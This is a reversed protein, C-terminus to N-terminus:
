NQLVDRIIAGQRANRVPKVKFSGIRWRIDIAFPFRGSRLSQQMDFDPMYVETDYKDKIRLLNNIRANIELRDHFFSCRTNLAIAFPERRLNQMGKYHQLTYYFSLGVYSTKSIHYNSHLTLNGLFEKYEGDQIQSESYTFSGMFSFYFDKIPLVYDTVLGIQRDKGYNAYSKVTRGEDDKYWYPLIRNHSYSGFLRCGFYGANTSLMIRHTDEPRLQPNGTQLYNPNSYDIRTSLNNIYPRMKEWRYTLALRSFLHEPFQLSLNLSPTLNFGNEQVYEPADTGHTIETGKGDDVYEGDLNLRATFNKAIYSLGIYATALHKLSEMGYTQNLLETKDTDFYRSDTRYDRYIYAAGTELKLCEMLPEVYHIQVTHQNVKRNGRSDPTFASAEEYDGDLRTRSDDNGPAYSFNYLINLIRNPKTFDYQYNIEGRWMRKNEHKRTLSRYIRTVNGTLQQNDLTNQEHMWSNSTLVRATIFHQKDIDYSMAANMGYQKTYASSKGHQELVSQETYNHQTLTETTSPSDTYSGNVNLDFRFKDHSGLLNASVDSSGLDTNTGAYPTGVVGFLWNRKDSDISLVYTYNGYRKDPVLSIKARSFAKAPLSKLVDDIHRQDDLLADAKGNRVVLFTSGSEGIQLNGAANYDIMPVKDLIEHMNMTERDPDQNLNYVIESSTVSVLPKVVIEDLAVEQEELKFIAPQDPESPGIIGRFTKYGVSSINIFHFKNEPLSVKFHGEEDTPLAIIIDDPGYKGGITISAYPIPEGDAQNVVQGYAEYKGSPSNQQAQAHAYSLLCFILLSIKALSKSSITMCTLAKM